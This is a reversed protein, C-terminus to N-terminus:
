YESGFWKNFLKDYVGNGRLKLLSRNVRERLVSGEPFAFGYYQIDFPDGVISVKGAGENKAFYMISPMDFVVSDVKGELLKQYAKAIKNFTFVKAGINNLAEVSTTGEKTAVSKDKLDTYGSIGENFKQITLGATFQAIIIGFFSIGIIMVLFAAFRGLWKGPAIDGYGVTTMTTLVCWFAEAIGPFYKDNIADKGREALWLVHGCVAIFLLLSFLCKLTGPTFVAKISALFNGRGKPILIGLGSDFYHHSFDLYKEREENITIASIGVDARGERLEQLINKFEVEHYKYQLGLDAAIAEWLEIDFGSYTSGSQIVNPILPNIDVILENGSCLARSKCLILVIALILILLSCIKRKM